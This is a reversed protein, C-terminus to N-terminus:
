KSSSFTPLILSKRADKPPIAGVVFGKVSADFTIPRSHFSSVNSCIWSKILCSNLNGSLTGPPKAFYLDAMGFENKILNKKSDLLAKSPCWALTLGYSDYWTVRFNRTSVQCKLLKFVKIVVVIIGIIFKRMIMWISILQGRFDNTFIVFLVRSMHM